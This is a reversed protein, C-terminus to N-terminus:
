HVSTPRYATRMLVVLSYAQTRGIFTTCYTYYDNSTAIHPPSVIPSAGRERERDGKGEEEGRDRETCRERGRERETCRERERERDRERGRDIDGRDRESEGEKRYREM